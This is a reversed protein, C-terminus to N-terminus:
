VLKSLKRLLITTPVRKKDVIQSRRIPLIKRMVILVSLPAKVIGNYSRLWGWISYM